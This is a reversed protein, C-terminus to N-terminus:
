VWLISQRGSKTHISDSEKELPFNFHNGVGDGEHTEPGKDEDKAEKGKISAGLYFKDPSIRSFVNKSSAEIVLSPSPMVTAFAITFM